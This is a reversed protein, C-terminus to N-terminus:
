AFIDVEGRWTLDLQGTALGDGDGDHEALASGGASSPQGDEAGGSEGGSQQGPQDSVDFQALSLGQEGLMDRLRHSNLELQERVVPNAAHVTVTAQDHQMRVKVEMPGMDPPTLHIEAMSMNRATLWSLKGMVKDGWEAQGVPTDVSMTYGRLPMSPDLNMRAQQQAGMEVPSPLSGTMLLSSRDAATSAEGQVTSALMTTLRSEMAPTTEANAALASARVTGGTVPLGQSSGPYLGAVPAGSASPEVPAFLSQLSAFTLPAEPSDGPASGVALADQSVDSEASEAAAVRSKQGTEDNSKQTRRTETPERNKEPASSKDANDPQRQRDAQKQELRKPDLRKQEARSVSEYQSAGGGTEKRGVSKQGGAEPQSPNAPVQPLISQQM